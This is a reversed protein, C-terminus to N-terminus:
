NTPDDKLGAHLLFGIELIFRFARRGEKGGEERADAAAATRRITDVKRLPAARYLLCPRM